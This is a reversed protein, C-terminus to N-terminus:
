PEPRDCARVPLEHRRASRKNPWLHFVILRRRWLELSRLSIHLRHADALPLATNYALSLRALPSADNDTQRGKHIFFGREVAPFEAVM